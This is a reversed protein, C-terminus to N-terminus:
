QPGYRTVLVKLFRAFDAPDRPPSGPDGPSQAAWDPTGQLVPLMTLGRSSAALVVADFTAFDTTSAGSPQAERWYLAARVSEAGSGALRNWEEGSASFAPDTMLGDAVVGLWGPPVKRTAAAAPSTATLCLVLTLLVTKRMTRMPHAAMGFTASTWSKRRSRRPASRTKAAIQSAQGSASTNVATYSSSPVSPRKAAREGCAEKRWRRRGVARVNRGSSGSYGWATSDSSM